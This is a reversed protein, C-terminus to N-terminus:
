FTDHASYYICRCRFVLCLVDMLIQNVHFISFLTEFSVFVYDAWIKRGYELAEEKMRILDQYREISWHAFSKESKRRMTSNDYEIDINHYKQAWAYLWQYLIPLTKDENHDTRLRFIKWLVM